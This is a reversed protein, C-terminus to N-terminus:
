TSKVEVAKVNVAWSQALNSTQKGGASPFLSGKLYYEGPKLTWTVRRKSANIGHLIVQKGAPVSVRSIGNTWGPFNSLDHKGPTVSFYQSADGAMNWFIADTSRYANGDVLSKYETSAIPTVVEVAKVNTAWSTNLDSTKRGDAFPFMRDMLYHDGPELTWLIGKRNAARHLIVKKGPPVLVRSVGTTWGASNSLLHSGPTMSFYQNAEGTLNWFTAHTPDRAKGKVLSQYAIKPIPRRVAIVKVSAVRPAWSQSVDSTQRKSDAFLMDTLVYQGPKLVLASGDRSSLTVQQGAPVIVRSIGAAWEAGFSSLNHVKDAEKSFYQTPTGSMSWFSAKSSDSSPLEQWDIKGGRVSSVVPPTKGPPTKGAGSSSLNHVRDVEKSFNQTPTGSKGPTTKGVTVCWNDNIRSCCREKDGQVKFDCYRADDLCAEGCKNQNIATVDDKMPRQLGKAFDKPVCSNLKRNCCKSRDQNMCPYVKKLYEDKCKRSGNKDGPCQSGSLDKADNYRRRGEQCANYVDTRHHTALNFLKSLHVTGAAGQYCKTAIQERLNKNNLPNNGYGEMERDDCGCLARLPGKGRVARLLVLLVVVAVLGGVVSSLLTDSGSAM